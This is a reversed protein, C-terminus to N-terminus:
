VLSLAADHDGFAPAYKLLQRIMKDAADAYDSEYMGAADLCREGFRLTKLRTAIM